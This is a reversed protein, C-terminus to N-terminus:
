DYSIGYGFPYLPDKSDYPIDELQNLQNKFLKVVVRTLQNTLLKKLEEDGIFRHIKSEKVRGGPTFDAEIKYVERHRNDETM